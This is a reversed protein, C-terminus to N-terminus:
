AQTLQLASVKHRCKRHICAKKKLGPGGFRPMDICFTCQGCNQSECGECQGCRGSIKVSHFFNCYLTYMCMYKHTYTNNYMYQIHEPKMWVKRLLAQPKVPMLLERTVFAKIDIDYFCRMIMIICKRTTIVYENYFTNHLIKFM